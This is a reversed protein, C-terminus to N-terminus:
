HFCCNMRVKRQALSSLTRFPSGLAACCPQCYLVPMQSGSVGAAEPNHSVYWVRRSLAAIRRRCVTRGSSRSGVSRVARLVWQLHGRAHAPLECSRARLQSFTAATTLPESARRRKTPTLYTTIFLTRSTRSGPVEKSGKVQDCPEFFL